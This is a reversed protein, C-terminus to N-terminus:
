VFAHMGLQRHMGVSGELIVQQAQSPCQDVFQNDPSRWNSNKEGLNEKWGM